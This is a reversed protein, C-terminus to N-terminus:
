APPDEAPAEAIDKETMGGRYFKFLERSQGMFETRNRGAGGLDVRGAALNDTLVFLKAYAVSLEESNLERGGERPSIWASFEGTELNLGFEFRYEHQIDGHTYQMM